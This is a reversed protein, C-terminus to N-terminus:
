GAADQVQLDPPQEQSEVKGQLELLSYMKRVSASMLSSFLTRYPVGELQWLSDSEEGLLSTETPPM